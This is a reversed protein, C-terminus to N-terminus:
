EHLGMKRLAVYEEMGKGAFLGQVYFCSASVWFAGWAVLEHWCSMKWAERHPVKWGYAMSKGIYAVRGGYVAVWVKGVTAKNEKIFCVGCYSKWTENLQLFVSVDRDHPM